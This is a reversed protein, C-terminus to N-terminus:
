APVPYGVAEADRAWRLTKAFSAQEVAEFGELCLAEALPPFWAQASAAAFASRLRGIIEPPTASGAVFAPIPAPETSDIVRIKAVLEPLYRRILLHWYGDLPGMDISGDIVSDLIKRATVLNGVSHAFVAARGDRRYPLLHHRLANFGSHSHEVTWGVTGEFTDALVRFPSDARVILDSRYLARGVAWLAAPIPAAVPVIDAMQLAIPFGCMFVCGLDARAWLEELPQPAPYPLYDFEVRAHRTVRDLLERWAAEAEPTVAYMRANAILHTM